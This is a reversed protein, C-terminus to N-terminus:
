NRIKDTSIITWILFLMFLLPPTVLVYKNRYNNIKIHLNSVDKGFPDGAHEDFAEAARPHDIYKSVEEMWYPSFAWSWGGYAM